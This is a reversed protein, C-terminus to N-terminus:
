CYACQKTVVFWGNWAIKMKVYFIKSYIKWLVTTFAEQQHWTNSRTRSGVSHSGGLLIFKSESGCLIIWSSCKVHWQNLAHGTVFLHSPFVTSTLSLQLWFVEVARRKQHSAAPLSSHRDFRRRCQFLDGYWEVIITLFFIKLEYYHHLHSSVYVVQHRSDALLLRIHAFM